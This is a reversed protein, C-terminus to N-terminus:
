DLPWVGYKLRFRVALVVAATISVLSACGLLVLLTGVGEPGM